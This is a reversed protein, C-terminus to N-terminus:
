KKKGKPPLWLRQGKKRTLAKVLAIKGNVM